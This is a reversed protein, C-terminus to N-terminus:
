FKEITSGTSRMSDRFKTPGTFRFFSKDSRPYVIILKGEEVKESFEKPPTEDGLIELMFKAQDQTSFDEDSFGIRAIANESQGFNRFWHGFPVRMRFGYYASEYPFANADILNKFDGTPLVVEEVPEEEKDKFIKELFSEKPEEVVEKEIKSAEDEALKKLYKEQAKSVNESGEIFTNLLKFFAKKKEFEEFQSTFIFSYKHNYVNSFLTIEQRERDTQDTTVKKIGTMNAILVNPDVKSDKRESSTVSFILFVRRAEDEKETFHVEGSPSTSYEWNGPYVFTYEENLYRKDKLDEDGKEELDKLRIEEVWFIERMKETRRIGDIEVRRGEFDELNVIKSALYAVLKENNELRHTARTSVSVSFPFVEGVLTETREEPLRSFPDEKEPFACASIVIATIMVAWFIKKPNKIKM